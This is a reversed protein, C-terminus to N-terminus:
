RDRRAMADAAHSIAESLVVTEGKFPQDMIFAFGIFAGLVAMQGALVARRYPSPMVTASVMLLVLVAFGIVEWYIPPLAIKVSDLRADRSAAISELLKLMESYILSERGAEPDLALIARSVPTYFGATRASGGTKVMQPWEDTVISRAYALLLPRAATAPPAGYRALLRDLQNIQSAEATVQPDARRFNADAQVLTFALVLATMTFIPVQMRLVFDTNAENARLFPVRQTLKPLALIVGALFTASLTLLLPEPFTYLWQTM